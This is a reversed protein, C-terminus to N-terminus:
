CVYYQVFKIVAMKLIGDDRKKDVTLFEGYLYEYM